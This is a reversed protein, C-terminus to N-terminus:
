DTTEDLRQPEVAIDRTEGLEADRRTGREDGALGDDVEGTGDLENVSVDLEGVRPRRRLPAAAGAHTAVANPEDAPPQSVVAPQSAESADLPGRQSTSRTNVRKMVRDGGKLQAARLASTANKILKAFSLNDGTSIGAVGVSATLQCMLADDRYTIRKIRRKVRRGVEEAGALDTHPLFVLISDDAYHIPLDIVRISRAIAVALGATIERPLDPRDIQQLAPIPDLRVLLVSLPYAYRKARRVEVVLLDKIDDFHHFGSRALPRRRAASGPTSAEEGENADKNEALQRRLDTLQAALGLFLELSAATIPRRLYTDAEVAAVRAQPDTEDSAVVVALPADISTFERVYQGIEVAAEGDALLLASLRAGELAATAEETSRAILLECGARSSANEARRRAAEHPEYIFVPLNEVAVRQSDNGQTMPDVWRQRLLM